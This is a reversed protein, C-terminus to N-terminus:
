GNEFYHPLFLDSSHCKCPFCLPQSFSLLCRYSYFLHFGGAHVRLLVSTCAALFESLTCSYDLLLLLCAPCRFQSLLIHPVPGSSSCGRCFPVALHWGGLLACCSLAIAGDRGKSCPLFCDLSKNRDPALPDACTQPFRRGVLGWSRHNKSM